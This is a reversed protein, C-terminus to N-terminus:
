EGEEELRVYQNTDAELVVHQETIGTESMVSDSFIRDEDDDDDDDDEDDDESPPELKKFIGNWAFCSIYVPGAIGFMIYILLFNINLDILIVPIVYIIIFLITSPINVLSVMFANVMTKKVTNEFHSLIPFVYLTETAIIIAVVVTTIKLAKPLADPYGESVNIYWLVLDLSIFCIFPLLILWIITAQKFNSKFSHWYEKWVYTDEKRVVKLLTYYLATWSAGITFIPISFVIAMINLILIDAVRGMFQWVPNDYNFMRELM